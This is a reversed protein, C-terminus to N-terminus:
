TQKAIKALLEPLQALSRIRYTPRANANPQDDLSKYERGVVLVSPIGCSNAGAIDTNLQNGVFLVENADCGCQALACTFFMKDPKWYGVDHSTVICSFYHDLSARQLWQRVDDASAERTNAWIGMRLKITPLVEKVGPMPTAPRVRIDLDRDSEEDLITHGLDFILVKLMAALNDRKHRPRQM